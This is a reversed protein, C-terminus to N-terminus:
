KYPYKYPYKYPHKYAYKYPYKYAYKYPHGNGIYGVAVGQFRVLNTGNQGM